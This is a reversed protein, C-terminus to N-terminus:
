EYLNNFGKMMIGRSYGNSDNFAFMKSDDDYSLKSIVGKDEYCKLFKNMLEIQKEDTYSKYEDNSMFKKLGQEFDKSYVECIEIVFSKKNDKLNDIVKITVIGLILVVLIIILIIVKKKM